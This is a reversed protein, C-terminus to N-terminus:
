SPLIFAPTYSLRDINFTPFMKKCDIMDRMSPHVYSNKSAEPEFNVMVKKTYYTKNNGILILSHATGEKKKSSEKGM